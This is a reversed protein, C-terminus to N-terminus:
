DPRRSSSPAPAALEFSDFAVDVEPADPDGGNKAILGVRAPTGAWALAGHPRWSKGDRSFAFEYSRGRRTVRLWYDNLGPESEIPLHEPRGDAEAVAYLTQGAGASWNYEYAFKVYNDDDAYVILGAQQYRAAPTFGVVHTTAVFDGDPALPSDVLYINRALNAGAENGDPTGHISGRQTTITLHGPAKALSAHTPDPRVPKWNLALKGDFGDFARLTAAPAPADPKGVPAGAADRLKAVLQNGAEGLIVLPPAEAFCAETRVRGDPLMEQKVYLLQDLNVVHGEVAVFRPRPRSEPGVQGEAAAGLVLAAMGVLGARRIAGGM